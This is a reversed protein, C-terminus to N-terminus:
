LGDITKMPTEVPKRTVLAWLAHGMRVLRSRPPEWYDVREVVVQLAVAERDDKGEPFWAASGCSCAM